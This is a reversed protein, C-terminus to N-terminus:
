WPSKGESQDDVAGRRTAVSGDVRGSRCQSQSVNDERDAVSNDARVSGILTLHYEAMQKATM